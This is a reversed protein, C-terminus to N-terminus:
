RIQCKACGSPSGVQPLHSDERLKSTGPASDRTSAAGASLAGWRSSSAPGLPPDSATLPNEPRGGVVGRRIIHLHTVPGSARTLM